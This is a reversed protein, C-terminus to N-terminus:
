GGSRDPVVAVPVRVHGLLGVAYGGAAVVVLEADAAEEILPRLPDTGPIARRVLDVQPYKERWGAVAEALARDADYREAPEAADASRGDAPAWVYVATVDTGRGAAEDFAFEVAAWAGASGDVAVVVGVPARRAPDPAPVVIVPAHAGAAVQASVSGPLESHFSGLGRTGVVVLTAGRSEEVLVAGPDGLTVVTVAALDPYRRQVRTSEVGLRDWARALRNAADGVVVGGPGPQYGHVLRLPLRRQYAEWAALEVAALSEPSGDVGVVIPARAIGTVTVGLV